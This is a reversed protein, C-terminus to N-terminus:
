LQSGPEPLRPLTALTAPPPAGRHVPYHAQHLPGLFGLARSDSVPTGVAQRTRSLAVSSCSGLSAPSVLGCARERGLAGARQARLCLPPVRGEDLPSLWRSLWARQSGPLLSCSPPLPLTKMSSFWPQSKDPTRAPLPWPVLARPCDGEVLLPRTTVLVWPVADTCLSPVLAWPSLGEPEQTLTPHAQPSTGGRRPEGPPSVIGSPRRPAPAPQGNWLRGGRGDWSGWVHTQCRPPCVSPSGPSLTLRM